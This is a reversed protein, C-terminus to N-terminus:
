DSFRDHGDGQTGDKPRCLAKAGALGGAEVRLQFILSPNEELRHLADRRLLEFPLGLAARVRDPHEQRVVGDGLREPDLERDQAHFVVVALDRDPDVGVVVPQGELGVRGSGRIELALRQRVVFIQEM